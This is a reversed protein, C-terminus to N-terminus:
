CCRIPTPQIRRPLAPAFLHAFLGRSGRLGNSYLCGCTAYLLPSRVEQGATSNPNPSSPPAVSPPGVISLDITVNGTSCTGCARACFGAYICDDCFLAPCTLGTALISACAGPGQLDDYANDCLSDAPANPAGCYDCAVDCLGPFDCSPCFSTACDHSGSQILQNCISFNAQGGGIDQMQLDYANVCPCATCSLLCMDEVAVAFPVSSVNAATENAAVAVSHLDTQLFGDCGLADIIGACSAGARDSCWPESSQQLGRHLSEIVAQEASTPWFLETTSRAPGAVELDSLFVMALGSMALFLAAMCLWPARPMRVRSYRAAM